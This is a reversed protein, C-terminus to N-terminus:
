LKVFNNFNIILNENRPKLYDDKKIKLDNAFKYYIEAYAIDNCYFKYIDGIHNACEIDKLNLGIKYYKIANDFNKITMYYDGINMISKLRVEEEVRILEDGNKEKNQAARICKKYYDIVPMMDYTIISNNNNIALILTGMNYLSIIDNLEAAQSTYKMEMDLDNKNRYYRCLKLISNVHNKDAAMKLYVFSEPFNNRINKLFNSYDIICFLNGKSIGELYYKEASDYKEQSQYLYALAYYSDLYDSDYKISKLFYKEAYQETDKKSYKKDRNLLYVQALYYSCEANKKKYGRFYHVMAKKYNYEVYQYYYGLKALFFSHCGRKKTNEILKNKIFNYYSKKRKEADFDTNIYFLHFLYDTITPTFIDFFILNNIKCYEKIKEQQEEITITEYNIDVHRNYYQSSQTTNNYIFSM